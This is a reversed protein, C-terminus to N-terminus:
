DAVDVDTLLFGAPTKTFTFLDGGCVIAYIENKAGDRDYVPKSRQLCTRNKATFERPYVKARFQAADSISADGMYPLRTLGAVAAPDNAKLAARFKGIFDAFEKQVAPSATAPKPAQAFAPAFTALAAAIVLSPLTKM